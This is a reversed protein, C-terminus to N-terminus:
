IRRFHYLAAGGDRDFRPVHFGAQMLMEGTFREGTQELEYVAAPDLGRLRCRFVPGNPINRPQVMTVLAESRDRAAHEWIVVVTAPDFPDTIRHFDGGTVLRNYKHYAAVQERIFSREEETMKNLDLEYGFTGSLAVIGRTPFPNTRGTQHNPCDSVHAGMTSCPYLMSTGYQIKLRELADTDDSTWIQPVYYLMGADFRGGGGSCGEILLKPYRKLLREHLEYMGLVYRHAIEKQREPPVAASGVETLHRNADWKIYEINASDLIGTIVGFLYDVVEPRSMDLVLQNRGESAGRGPVHLCWDPHARYLESDHSIMEPEFWLGFKLGLRNVESVLRGLGGKLKSENVFWDGLSTRDDDRKGFWGDDLVLMEIGLDAADKAIALLKEENFNFYTAEWNNVLIPRKRDKWYSRILHDHFLNHFTRSMDGLGDASYVLLAEPATFSEGPALVWEFTRENIGIQARLLNFQDLELEAAFNGSYLLTIGYAEGATETTQPAALAFFPNQQHSSLGRVSEIVTRTHSLKRREVARERGWAGPLHLLEFDAGPFDVSASSLKEIRVTEGSRNVVKAARAIANYKTFTSYLLIFEVDSAADHLSLELTDVEGDAGFTAPLGELTPKGKYIKHSRYKFDTVTHGNEQRVIVGPAHFDGIGNTGFEQPIVDRSEPAQTGPAAPSFARDMPRYLYELADSDIKGGYCLHAIYGNPEILFAYTSNGADLKFVRNKENFTIPM